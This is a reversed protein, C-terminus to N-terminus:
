QEGRLHNLRCFEAIYNDIQLKSFVPDGAYDIRVEDTDAFTTEVMPWDAYAPGFKIGPIQRGNRKDYRHAKVITAHLAKNLAARTTPFYTKEDMTLGGYLHSLSDFRVGAITPRPQDHSGGQRCLTVNWTSVVEKNNSYNTGTRNQKTIVAKM